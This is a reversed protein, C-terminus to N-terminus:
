ITPANGGVRRLKVPFNAALVLLVVGGARQYQIRMTDVNRMRLRAYPPSDYSLRAEKNLPQNRQKGVVSASPAFINHM